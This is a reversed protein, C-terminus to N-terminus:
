CRAYFALAGAREDPSRITQQQCPLTKAKCAQRGTTSSDGVGYLNEALPWIVLLSTSRVGLMPRWRGLKCMLVAYPRNSVTCDRLKVQRGAQGAAKRMEHVRQQQLNLHIVFCCVNCDPLLIVACHAPLSATCVHLSLYNSRRCM